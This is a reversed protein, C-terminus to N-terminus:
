AIAGLLSARWADVKGEDDYWYEELTPVIDYEVVGQLWEDDVEKRGCLRSHGIEFGKGLSPDDRIADNLSKIQDVLRDFKVSSLSKRYEDFRESDFGPRMAFFAFRRRLAYDILALSRDATNMMGILYLNEPISFTEDHYALRLEEGRYDSEILMMVEGFVKSLNGRNIEDIIFFYSRKKDQEAKRCFRLFVGEKLVFGEKAPKYGMIFDEYGYSQHLQIMEIRDNDREGMISWALRRACFTKGVGPAGQLILNQHSELIGRLRRYGDEDMFVDRLFEKQGYVDKIIGLRVCERKGEDNIHMRKLDVRELYKYSKWLRWIALEIKAVYAPKGNPMVWQECDDLLGSGEIECIVDDNTLARGSSFVSLVASRFAANTPMQGDKAGGRVEDTSGDGADVVEWPVEYEETDLRENGSRALQGFNDASDLRAYSGDIVIM